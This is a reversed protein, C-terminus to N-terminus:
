CNAAKQIECLEEFRAVQTAALNQKLLSCLAEALPVKPLEEDYYPSANQVWLSELFVISYSLVTIERAALDQRLVGQEKLGSLIAMYFDYLSKRFKENRERLAPSINIFEYINQYYVPALEENKQAKFFSSVALELLDSSITDFSVMFEDQYRMAIAELLLDKQAYHYTLNGITTGAAEAIERLSVNSYGKEGFLRIAADCIKSKTKNM